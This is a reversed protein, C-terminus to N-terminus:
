KTDPHDTWQHLSPPLNGAIETVTLEGKIINANAKHM